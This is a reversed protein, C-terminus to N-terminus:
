YYLAILGIYYAEKVYFLSFQSFRGRRVNEDAMEKYEISGAGM